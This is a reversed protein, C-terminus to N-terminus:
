KVARSFTTIVTDTDSFGFRHYLRLSSQNYTQTNLSMADVGQARAHEILDAMLLAGIGQRQYSPHVALRTVHAKSGGAHAFAYGVLQKNQEAVVFRSAGRMARFFTMQGYWWDPEFAAHDIETVADLDASNAPRVTARCPPLSPMSMDDKHLTVVRALPYFGHQPLKEALWDPWAMCNLTRINQHRLAALMPPLLAELLQGIGLGDQAVLARLWAVPAADRAGLGLGVIHEGQEAVL